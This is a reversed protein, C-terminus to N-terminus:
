LEGWTLFLLRPQGPVKAALDAKGEASRRSCIRAQILLSIRILKLRQGDLFKITMEHEGIPMVASVGEMGKTVLLDFHDWVWVFQIPFGIPDADM